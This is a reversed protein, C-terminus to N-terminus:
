ESTITLHVWYNGVASYSKSPNQSNSFTGDGFDWTYTQGVVPNNVNLQFINGTLYQTDDNVTIDVVPMELVTVNKTLSSTGNDDTVTLQVSYTGPAAYIKVPNADTSSTGDGFDWAYSMTGTGTSTSTFS